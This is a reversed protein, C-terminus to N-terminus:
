RMVTGGDVVIIQGNVASAHTSALFAIVSAVEDPEILRRLPSEIEYEKKEEPTLDELWRTRVNGPAVANARVYPKYELVISKVLAGVGSKAISFLGGRDHGSFIPSSCTLVISGAKQKLMYPLVSKCLHFTSKLDGDLVRKWDDETVDVIRKEWIDASWVGHLAALCDIRGFREYSADIFNQVDSERTLDAKVTIAEAGIRECEAGIERATNAASYYCLALKAGERAFLRATASGIGGTAGSVVAVAGSLLGLGCDARKDSVLKEQSACTM